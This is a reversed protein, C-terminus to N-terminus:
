KDLAAPVYTDGVRYVVDISEGTHLHHLRLHYQVAAGALTGVGATTRDEAAKLLGSLGFLVAVTAVAVAISRKFSIQMWAGPGDFLGFDFDEFAIENGGNAKGMKGFGDRMAAWPGGGSHLKQTM